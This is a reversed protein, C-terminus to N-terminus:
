SHPGTVVTLQREPIHFQYRLEFRHGSAALSGHETGDSTDQADDDIPATNKAKKDARDNQGNKDKTDGKPEVENWKFTGNEIGLGKATEDDAGSTGFLSKKLSSVQENVEDEDLYTAIRDLAIKTRALTSIGSCVRIQLIQVIWTEM